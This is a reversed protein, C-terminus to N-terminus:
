AGRPQTTCTEVLDGAATVHSYLGLDDDVVTRREVVNVALKM